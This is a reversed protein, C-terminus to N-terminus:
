FFRQFVFNSGNRKPGVFKRNVNQKQLHEWFSVNIFALKLASSFQELFKPLLSLCYKSCAVWSSKLVHFNTLYMINFVLRAQFAGSKVRETKWWCERLPLHGIFLLERSSRVDRGRGYSKILCYWCLMFKLCQRVRMVHLFLVPALTFSLYPQNWTHLTPFTLFLDSYISKLWKIYFVNVLLFLSFSSSFKTGQCIM